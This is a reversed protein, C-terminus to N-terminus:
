FEFASCSRRGKLQKKSPTQDLYHSFFTICYSYYWRSTIMVMTSVDDAWQKISIVITNILDFIYLWSYCHCVKCLSSSFWPPFRSCFFLTWPHLHFYNLKNSFYFLFISPESLFFLLSASSIWVKKDNIKECVIDNGFKIVLLKDSNM